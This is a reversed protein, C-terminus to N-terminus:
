SGSPTEAKRAVVFMIDFANFSFLFDLRGGLTLLARLSPKRVAFGIASAYTRYVPPHSLHILEFGTRHLLRRITEPSFYYLHWPPRMLRWARGRLRAVWSSVDGTTLAVVGGPGLWRNAKHLYADPQALHELVDWFCIIDFESTPRDPLHLFDACLVNVGVRNRAYAAAYESIEIGEVQYETCALELFYGYASGIELLRRARPALQRLTALRKRFNYQLAQKEAEYDPYEFPRVPLCEGVPAARRADGAQRSQFYEQTYLERPDVTLDAYVLGCRRCRVVHLEPYRPAADAAGCAACPKM